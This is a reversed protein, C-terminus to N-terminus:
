MRSKDDNECAEKKDDSKGGGEVSMDCKSDGSGDAAVGSKDKSRDAEFEIKSKESSGNVKVGIGPGNSGMDSKDKNQNAEVEIDSEGNKENAEVGIEPGNTAM